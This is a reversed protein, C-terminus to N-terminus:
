RGAIVELQRQGVDGEVALDALEPVDVGRRVAHQDVLGVPVLAFGIPQRRRVVAIKDRRQHNRYGLGALERGPDRRGLDADVVLRAIELIHLDLRLDTPSYHTTLLSYRTSFSNRNAM